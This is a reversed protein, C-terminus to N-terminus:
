FAGKLLIFLTKPDVNTQNQNRCECSSTINGSRWNLSFVADPYNRHGTRGRTEHDEEKAAKRDNLFCKLKLNLM